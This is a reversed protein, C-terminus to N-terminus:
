QACVNDGKQHSLDRRSRVSLWVLLLGLILMMYTEPEPVPTINQFIISNDNFDFDGGGAIDEFGVYLSPIGESDTFAKYYVHNIGDDNFPIHSQFWDGTDMVRMTFFVETGAEYNGWFYETGIAVRNSVYPNDYTNSWEDINFKANMFSSYQATSGAFYGTVPGDNAVQFTVANAVTAISLLLVFIFRKFM